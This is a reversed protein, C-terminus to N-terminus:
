DLKNLNVSVAYSGDTLHTFFICSGSPFCQDKFVELLRDIAEAEADGYAGISKWFAICNESVKQTYQQGTLQTIFSVQTLKEFPGELPLFGFLNFIHTYIDLVFLRIM